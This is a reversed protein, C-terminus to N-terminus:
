FHIGLGIAVQGTNLVFNSDKSTVDSVTINTLNERQITNSKNNQYTLVTASLIDISLRSNLFFRAGYYLGSDIIYKNDRRKVSNSNTTNSSYDYLFGHYGVGIGPGYHVMFRGWQHQIEYNVGISIDLQSNIDTKIPGSDGRGANLYGGFNLASKQAKGMSYKVLSIGFPTPIGQIAKYLKDAGIYVEWKRREPEPATDFRAQKTTNEQAFTHNVSLAYVM